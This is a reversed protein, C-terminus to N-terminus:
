IKGDKVMKEYIKRHDARTLDLNELDVENTTQSKINSETNTGQKGSLKFYPNANIFEEVLDDIKFPEAKDTNYRIEGKEDLVVPQGDEDLKVSNKLLQSVHEPNAAKHKSAANVLSGDVRVKTLEDRLRDIEKQSKDKTQKLIKDFEQRKLMQAEEAQQKESKLQQYEEIDINEYKKQAQAVRKAVIANLEEQTFNKGNNEQTTNNDGTQSNDETINEQNNDMNQDTM